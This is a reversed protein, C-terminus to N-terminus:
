EQQFNQSQFKLCEYFAHVQLKGRAPDVNPRSEYVRHHIVSLLLGFEKKKKRKSSCKFFSNKKSFNSGSIKLM